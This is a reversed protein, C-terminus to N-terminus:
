KTMTKQERLSIKEDETDTTKVIQINYKNYEVAKGNNM